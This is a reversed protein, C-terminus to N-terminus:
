RVGYDSPRIMITRNPDAEAMEVFARALKPDKTIAYVAEYSEETPRVVVLGYTRPEDNPALAIPLPLKILTLFAIVLAISPSLIHKPLSHPVFNKLIRKSFEKVPFKNLRHYLKRALEFLITAILSTLVGLIFDKRTM